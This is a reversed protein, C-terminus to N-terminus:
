VSSYLDTVSLYQLKKIEPLVLMFCDCVNKFFKNRHNLMDFHKVQLSIFYTHLIMSVIIRCTFVCEM